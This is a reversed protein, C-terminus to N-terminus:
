KGGGEENKKITRECLTIAEKIKDQHISELSGYIMKFKTQQRETCKTLVEVLLKREYAKIKDVYESM